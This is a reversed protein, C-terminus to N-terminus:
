RLWRLLQKTVDPQSLLQLHNTQYAIWKHARPFNLERQKHKHEGLASRLPVLGEGVLHNALLGRKSSTTAAVAYNAVGDPLPLHRHQRCPRAFRDYAVANDDCWDEDVLSGYRLDTIGASRLKGVKALPAIFPLSDLCVDFLNGVRELPAGQHPAGLFIIKKLRQRWDLSAQEAYHCASRAVLGGMSYTLM